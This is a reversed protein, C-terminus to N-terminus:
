LLREIIRESVGTNWHPIAGPAFDVRSLHEEIATVSAPSITASPLLANSGLTLTVPRETNDRLTCCPIGLHSTEEQIGGSDTVVGRSGLVLSMFEFYGLPEVIVLGDLLHLLGYQELRKRTAPHLPLVVPTTNSLARLTDFISKLIKPDSTHEQRHITAVIYGRPTLGLTEPMHTEEINKKFLELSEIGINGVLHVREKPVGEALLNEVGSDETALLVSSLHDVIIRNKEEPMRPDRSRLGAEIHAFPLNFRSAVIAAALTSNTDGLSAVGSLSSAHPALARELASVMGGLRESSKEEVVTLLIHPQPLGLQKFFVESMNADYHQGTHVLLFEIDPSREAAKILAALKILEPRTGFVLAHKKKM